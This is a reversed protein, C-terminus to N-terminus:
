GQISLGYEMDTVTGGRPAMTKLGSYLGDSSFVAASLWSAVPWFAVSFLPSLPIDSVPKCALVGALADVALEALDLGDLEHTSIDTGAASLITPAIDVLSAPRTCVNGGAFREPLSVILPVRAAPDHMSRKGFCNNDGLHEGHDSTYLILTDELQGTKKLTDLLRGVQFDIFSIAAYYYAKMSRLLNQDIGQDRYKYRNQHRNIYTLLSEADQPVKPLPMLPARYLKHWPNPPSFPPHPHVYSSFLMWPQRSRAQSEIFDISRDGVWQTPHFEAPIQSVQPTYYMEGRVGHPDCVHSFGKGHLFKLYDDVDPSPVLEEQKERSQFGRLAHSDPSFHCKGIGHTRYGADTLAQMLSARDDTPM